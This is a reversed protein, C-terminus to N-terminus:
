ETRLAEVPDVSAAQLAPRLSAVLVPMLLLLVAILFTMPNNPEVGYLQSRLLRTVLLTAAGGCAVGILAAALTRQLFLMSIQGRTAGLAMRVGIEQRRLAVSYAVVGYIGVCALVLAIGAFSVLLAMNFRPQAISTSILDDMTKVNAVAQNPDVRHVLERIARTLEEAPVHSRVVFSRQGVGQEDDAPWYVEPGVAQAISGATGRVNGVVGVIEFSDGGVVTLHRGIPNGGPLYQRVLEQNVLIPTDKIDFDRETFTRGALLPTGAARLYDGAIHRDEANIAPHNAIRPLWDADFNSRLHWDTTPLADIQGVAMVGPLAEIGQQVGAYFNRIAAAKANWPLNVAFTLLHDPNFGLPSKMLNWLSQALLSAGVLLMLSLGVQISIFAHRLGSGTSGTLRTEGRKLAANLEVRRNQWAPALGFALGACASLSLAFAAVPWNIAVFGPAGLSGPLKTGIMRILAYSAALGLTGGILTLLTSETLFQLLIRRESAGLARRLAVERERGTARSLLLNAVNICAILLLFGSAIMLVLLAPRAAGYLDERLSESRFQWMADTAPHERQLQGGITALDVQAAQATVGPKLRAYVNIFRTGEHRYDGFQTPTFHSPRWLDIGRPMQFSAPMVGVITAQKQDLLVPRDIVSQDGGFLQQWASYSLVVADPANPICDREDFTRGLLPQVGFLQWFQSNAGVAKVPMPLQTGAILTPHDFYFYGISEFSRSRAMVDFFRPVGVLGGTSQGQLRLDELHLIRDAEPYPLSRLLTAYVLTYISTTAGIGLALTIVVTLTFGPSRVIQRFAYRIDQWVSELRFGIVEQSQERLRMANGFQKTAAQRAQRQSMGAAELDRQQEARHFAMEEDLESRFRKRRILMGLKRIFGSAQGM